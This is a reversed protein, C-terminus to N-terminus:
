IQSSVKYISGENAAKSNTGPITFKFESGQGLSSEVWIKGGHKEVFEKCLLLGLGTGAEKNTGKSTYQIDIRFLMDVNKQPIGIGTDKVSVTIFNGNKRANISIKGNKHTFKIANGLLNRIITNLMDKDAM